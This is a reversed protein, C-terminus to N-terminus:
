PAATKSMLLTKLHSICRINPHKLVIEFFFTRVFQLPIVVKTISLTV